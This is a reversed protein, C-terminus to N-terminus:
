AIKRSSSIGPFARFEPWGYFILEFATVATGVKEQLGIPRRDRWFGQGAQGQCGSFSKFM